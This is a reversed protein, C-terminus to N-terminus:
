LSWYVIVEPTGGTASQISTWAGRHEESTGRRVTITVPLDQGIGLVYVCEAAGALEKLVVRTAANTPLQMVAGTGIQVSSQGITLDVPAALAAANFSKAHHQVQQLDSNAYKRRQETIM